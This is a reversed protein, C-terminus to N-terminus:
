LDLFAEMLDIVETAWRPPLEDDTPFFARRPIIGRSPYSDDGQHYIAYDASTGIEVGDRSANHSFSNRLIGSRVLPKTGGGERRALYEPDLPKWRRGYPDRSENFTDRVLDVLTDGILDFVEELDDEGVTDILHQLQKLDERVSINWRAM